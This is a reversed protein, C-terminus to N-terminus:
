RRVLRIAFERDIIVDARTAHAAVITHEIALIRDIIPEDIDRNRARRRSATDSHTAELFIRVDAGDLQLVYTGEVVLVAVGSFDLMHTSFRDNPYDVIPAVIGDRGSRFDGIHAHLKEFDIEQPGVRQLEASRHEHNARPPRHYYDDQHLIAIPFGAGALACALSGAVASKGSASEGGIAIVTRTRTRLAFRDVLLAVLMPGLADSEANPRGSHEGSM